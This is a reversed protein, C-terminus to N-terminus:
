TKQRKTAYTYSKKKRKKKKQHSQHKFETRGAQLLLCKIIHVEDRTLKARTIKFIPGQSSNAV